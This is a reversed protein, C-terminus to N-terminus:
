TWTRRMSLDPGPLQTRVYSSAQGRGTCSTRCLPFTAGHNQASYYYYSPVDPRAVAAFVSGVNLIEMEEVCSLAEQTQRQPKDDFKSPEIRIEESLWQSPCQYDQEKAAVSTNEGISNDDM